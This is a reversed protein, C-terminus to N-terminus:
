DNLKFDPTANDKVYQVCQSTNLGDAKCKDVTTGFAFLGLVSIMFIGFM